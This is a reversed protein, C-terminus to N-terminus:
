QVLMWKQKNDSPVILHSPNISAYGSPISQLIVDQGTAPVTEIIFGQHTNITPGSTEKVITYQNGKGNDQIALDDYLKGIPYIKYGNPVKISSIV